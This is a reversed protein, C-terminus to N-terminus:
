DDDQDFNSEEDITDGCFPCFEVKYYSEDMDHRLKFVASCNSCENHLMTM